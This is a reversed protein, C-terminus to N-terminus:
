LLEKITRLIRQDEPSLYEFSLAKYLVSNQCTTLAIYHGGGSVSISQQDTVADMARTVALDYSSPVTHGAEQLKREFEALYLEKTISMGDLYYGGGQRHQLKSM